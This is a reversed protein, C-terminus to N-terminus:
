CMRRVLAVGVRRDWAPASPPLSPPETAAPTSAATSRKSYPPPSPDTANLVGVVAGLAGHDAGNVGGRVMALLIDTGSTPKIAAWYWKVAGKLVGVGVQGATKSASPAKPVAAAQPVHGAASGTTSVDVPRTTAGDQAAERPTVEVTKAPPTVPPVAPPTVPPPVAADQHDAVRRTDPDFGTPDVYNLPNNVVYSYPNWSQGSLPRSVIPDTTLFRGVKADYM